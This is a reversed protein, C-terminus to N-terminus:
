AARPRDFDEGRRLRAFRDFPLPALLDVLEDLNKQVETMAQEVHQISEPRPRAPQAERIRDGAGDGPRVGRRVRDVPFPIVDPNRETEGVLRLRPM